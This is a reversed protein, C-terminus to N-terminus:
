DLTEDVVGRLSGKALRAEIQEGPKVMESARVVKRDAVRTVIAYGRELTQQPSVAEFARQLSQLESRRRALLQLQSSTLRQAVNEWHQRRTRLHIRPDHRELRAATVSVRARREGVLARMARSLRVSAEDARQALDQLRRRPHVLRRDLWEIRERCHDIRTQMLQTLRAALQTLRHRWEAQDPVVLEAAASPTPARQDAAFDAITVDTEHGVGSVVPIRCAHIARAVIEENFAWLDELSGGGRALILVDCDGRDSALQIARAIQAAAGTGQVAVPYVLVPIAPFRRKLVNLIDRIAAGTPSTIVGIRRPIAPLPKKISADFLGEAALRQVLADFARRLAGAGAEELCEVILQFTGRDPYLSVRAQALVLQGDEPVFRLARNRTRFMACRVQCQEDKLSFYWHGSGHRVLNSIEGEVWIPPFSSELVERAERNLRSVTYIDRAPSPGSLSEGASSM